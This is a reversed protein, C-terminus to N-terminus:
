KGDPICAWQLWCWLTCKTKLVWGRIQVAIQPLTKWGYMRPIRQGSHTAVQNSDSPRLSSGCCGCRLSTSHSRQVTESVTAWVHILPVSSKISCAEEIDFSIQQYTIFHLHPPVPWPPHSNSSSARLSTPPSSSDFGYHEVFQSVSQYVEAPWLIYVCMFYQAPCLYRSSPIIIIFYLLSSSPYRM